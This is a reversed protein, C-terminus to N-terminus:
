KPTNNALVRNFYGYLLVFFGSALLVDRVTLQGISQLVILFIPFCSVALATRKIRRSSWAIVDFKRLVGGILVLAGYCFGYLLLFLIIFVASPVREPNTATFLITSCAVTFGIIIIASRIM